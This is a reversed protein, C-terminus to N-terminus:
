QFQELAVPVSLVLGALLVTVLLSWLLRVVLLWLNLLGPSMTLSSNTLLPRSATERQITM